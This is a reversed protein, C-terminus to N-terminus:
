KRRRHFGVGAQGSCPRPAQRRSSGRTTERSDERSGSGGPAGSPARPGTRQPSPGPAAGRADADLALRVACRRRHHWRDAPADVSRLRAPHGCGDGCPSTRCVPPPRGGGRRGLRPEPGPHRLLLVDDGDDRESDVQPPCATDRGGRRDDPRHRGPARVLAGPQLVGVVRRYGARGRSRWDGCDTQSRAAIVPVVFWLLWQVIVVVVGPWLRLPKQPTPEDTQAIAM